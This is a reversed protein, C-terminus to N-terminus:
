EELNEEESSTKGELEEDLGVGGEPTEKMRDCISCWVCKTNVIESTPYMGGCFLCISM